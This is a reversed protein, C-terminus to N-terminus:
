LEDIPPVAVNYHGQHANLGNLHLTFSHLTFKGEKAEETNYEYEVSTVDM